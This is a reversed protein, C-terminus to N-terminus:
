SFYYYHPPLILRETRNGRKTGEIRMGPASLIKCCSFVDFQQSLCDNNVLSLNTTGRPLSFIWDQEQPPNYPPAWKPSLCYCDLRHPTISASHLQPELLPTSFPLPSSIPCLFIDHTDLSSCGLHVTYWRSPLRSLFSISQMMKQGLHDM